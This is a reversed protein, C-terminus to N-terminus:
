PSAVTGSNGEQVAVPDAREEVNEQADFTETQGGSMSRWQRQLGKGLSTEGTLAAKVGCHGAVARALLGAGAAVALSRLVPNGRRLVLLSLATGFIASWTRETGSLNGSQGSM